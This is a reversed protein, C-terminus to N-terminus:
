NQHSLEIEATYVDFSSSAAESQRQRLRRRGSVAEAERGLKAKDLSGTLSVKTSMHLRVNILINAKVNCNTKHSVKIKGCFTIVVPTNTAM